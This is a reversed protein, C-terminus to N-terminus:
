RLPRLSRLPDSSNGFRWPAVRQPARCGAKDVTTRKWVMCLVSQVPVNSRALSGAIGIYFTRHPLWWMDCVDGTGEGISTGRTGRVFRSSASCASSSRSALSALSFLILIRKVRALSRSSPALEGFTRSRRQRERQRELM